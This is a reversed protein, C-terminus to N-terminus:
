GIPGSKNLSNSTICWISSSLQGSHDALNSGKSNWFFYLSMLISSQLNVLSSISCYALMTYSSRAYILLFAFLESCSSSIGKAFSGSSLYLFPMFYEVLFLLSSPRRYFSIFYLSIASVGTTLFYLALYRDWSVEASM